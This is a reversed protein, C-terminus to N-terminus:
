QCAGALLSADASNGPAPAIDATTLFWGEDRPPNFNRPNVHRAIYCGVFVQQSGDTQTAVLMTPIRAHQSGAGADYRVPLGVVLLDSATDAFGRAFQEESVGGPPGQNWYNYARQYEKLYIANYYSALLSAPNSRDSFASLPTPGTSGCGQKLTTLEPGSVTEITATTLRWGKDQPPVFDYPNTQHAVYCGAFYAKSGDRKNVILLTPISVHRQGAGADVFDPPRVVAIVQATDAYGQAFQDLSAGDPASEWYDYARQYDQANIADYYASLLSVPDARGRPAPIPTPASTAPSPASTPVLTPVPPASPPATTPATTPTPLMTTLVLTPVPTATHVSTPATTPSPASTPAATLLSPQQAIPTAATGSSSLPVSCASLLLALTCVILSISALQRRYQATM